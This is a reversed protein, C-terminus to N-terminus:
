RLLAIHCQLENSVLLLSMKAYMEALLNAAELKLEESQEVHIRESDETRIFRYTKKNNNNNFLRQM